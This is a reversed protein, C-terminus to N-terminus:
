NSFKADRRESHYSIKSTIELYQSTRFFYTTKDQWSRSIFSSIQTGMFFRVESKWVKPNQAKICHGLTYLIRQHSPDKRRECEEPILLTPFSLYFLLSPLNKAKDQLLSFSNNTKNRTYCGYWITIKINKKEAPAFIKSASPLLTPLHCKFFQTWKSDLKYVCSIVM